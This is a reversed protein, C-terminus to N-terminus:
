QCVYTFSLSFFGNNSLENVTLDTTQSINTNGVDNVKLNIHTTGYQVDGEVILPGSSFEM